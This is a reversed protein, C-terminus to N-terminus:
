RLAVGSPRIPHHNTSVGASNATHSPLHTEKTTSYIAPDHKVFWKNFHEKHVSRLALHSKDILTGKQGREKTRKVSKKHLNALRIFVNQLFKYSVTRFINIIGSFTTNFRTWFVTYESYFNIM